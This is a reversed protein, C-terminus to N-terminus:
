KSSELARGYDTNPICMMNNKELNLKSLNNHLQAIIAEKNKLVENNFEDHQNLQHEHFKKLREIEKKLESIQTHLISRDSNFNRREVHNNILKESQARVTKDLMEMGDRYGDGYGWRYGSESAQEIKENSM